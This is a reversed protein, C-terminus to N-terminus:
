HGPEVQKMRVGVIVYGLRSELPLALVAIVTPLVAGGLGAGLPGQLAYHLGAWLAMFAVFTLLLGVVQQVGGGGGPEVKMGGLYLAVVPFFACIPILWLMM